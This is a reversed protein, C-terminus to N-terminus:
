RVLGVAGSGNGAQSIDPSSVHGQPLSAGLQCGLGRVGMPTRSRGHGDPGGVRYFWCVAPPTRLRWTDRLCLRPSM